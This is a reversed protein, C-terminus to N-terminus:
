LCSYKGRAAVKCELSYSLNMVISAGPLMQRSAAGTVILLLGMDFPCTASSSIQRGTVLKNYSLLDGSLTRFKSVALTNLRWLPLM